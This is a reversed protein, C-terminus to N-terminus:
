RNWRGDQTRKELDGLIEYVHQGLNKEATVKDANESNNILFSPRASDFYARLQDLPAPNEEKVKQLAM